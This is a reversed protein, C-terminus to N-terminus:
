GSTASIERRASTLTEPKTVDLPYASVAAHGDALAQLPAASRASVAVSCGAEGLLQALAAGLGTSAGIIWVHRYPFAM